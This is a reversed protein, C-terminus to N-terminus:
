EEGQNLIADACQKQNRYKPYSTFKNFEQIETRELCIAADKERQWKAIAEAAGQMVSNYLGGNAAQVVERPISM